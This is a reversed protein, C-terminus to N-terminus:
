TGGREAIYEPICSTCMYVSGIYTREKKVDQETYKFLIYQVIFVDNQSDRRLRKMKSVSQSRAEKRRTPHSVRHREM